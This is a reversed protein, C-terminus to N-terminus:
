GNKLARRVKAKVPKIFSAIQDRVFLEIDELSSGGDHMATARRTITKAGDTMMKIHAANIPDLVGKKVLDRSVLLGEAKANNIRTKSIDEITKMGKLYAFFQVKNGYRHILERLTLDAVSQIDEPIPVGSGENMDRKIGGPRSKGKTYVKRKRATKGVKKGAVPTPAGKRKGLYAVALPHTADVFRGFKIPLLPGRVAKSIAPQSVGCRTAFASLTLLEQIAM